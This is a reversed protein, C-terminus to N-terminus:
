PQRVVRFYEIAGLAWRSRRPCFYVQVAYLGTDTLRVNPLRISDSLVVTQNPPFPLRRNPSFYDHLLEWRNRGRRRRVRVRIGTPGASRAVVRLFLDFKPVYKPFETDAPVAYEYAVELLDFVPRNGHRRALTTLVCHQVDITRSRSM